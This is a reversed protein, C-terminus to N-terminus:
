PKIYIPPIFDSLWIKENGIYFDIGDSSADGAKIKLIVPEHSKRKGVREADRVNVALHVYQRTMSKLGEQYILEASKPSTGHYLIEPPQASQKELKGPITHGYLARIKDGNNSLEHRKKNSQIIMKEVDEGRLSSWEPKLSRLSDLLSEVVVWGDNDIELEYVWPEHRLAHSVTRSLDSYDLMM